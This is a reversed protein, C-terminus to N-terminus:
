EIYFYEKISEYKFNTIGKINKLEEAEKFSGQRNRYDVIRQALKEGIGRVGMLLEEDATNLNIRGIDRNLYSIIKVQSYKKTLFNAQTDKGSFLPGLFLIKM